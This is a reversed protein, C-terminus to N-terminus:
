GTTRQLRDLAEALRCVESSDSLLFRHHLSLWRTVAAECNPLLRKRIALAECHAANLSYRRKTGPLWLPSHHLPRYIFEVPFDLEESLFRAMQEVDRGDFYAPDFSFAYHYLARETVQKPVAQPTVGPIKALECDLLAANAARKRNQEPLRALQVILVAAHLESLCYNSGHILGGPELEM